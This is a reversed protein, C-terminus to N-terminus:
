REAEAERCAEDLAALVGLTHRAHAANTIQEDNLGIAHLHDRMTTRAFVSTADNISRDGSTVVEHWAGDAAKVHTAYDDAGILTGIPMAKREELTLTRPNKAVWERCAAIKAIETPTRGPASTDFAAWNRIHEEHLDVKTVYEIEPM